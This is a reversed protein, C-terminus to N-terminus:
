GLWLVNQIVARDMATCVIKDVDFVAEGRFNYAGLKCEREKICDKWEEWKKARRKWSKWLGGSGQHSLKSEILKEAKVKKEILDQDIIKVSNEIVGNEKIAKDTQWM